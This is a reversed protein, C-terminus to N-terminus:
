QQWIWILQMCGQVTYDAVKSQELSDFKWANSSKIVNM